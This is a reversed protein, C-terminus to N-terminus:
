GQRSDRARRRRSRCLLALTVLFATSSGPRDREFSSCHCKATTPVV